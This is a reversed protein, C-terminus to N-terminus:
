KAEPKQQLTLKRWFVRPTLEATSARPKADFQM